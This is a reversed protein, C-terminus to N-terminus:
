SGPLCCRQETLAPEEACSYVAEGGQKTLLLKKSCNQNLAPQRLQQTGGQHAPVEASEPVVGDLLGGWETSGENDRALTHLRTVTM